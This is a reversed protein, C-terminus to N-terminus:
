SKGIQSAVLFEKLASAATKLHREVDAHSCSGRASARIGTIAEKLHPDVIEFNEAIAADTMASALSHNTPTTFCMSALIVPHGLARRLCWLAANIERYGANQKPHVIWALANGRHFDLALAEIIDICKWKKGASSPHFSVPDNTM